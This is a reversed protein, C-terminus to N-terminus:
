PEEEVLEPALSDEYYSEAESFSAFLKKEPKPDRFAYRNKYIHLKYFITGDKLEETLFFIGGSVFVVMIIIGAVAVIMGSLAVVTKLAENELSTSLVMCVFGLLILLISTHIRNTYFEKRSVFIEKENFWNKLNM